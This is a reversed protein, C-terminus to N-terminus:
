AWEKALEWAHQVHRDYREFIGPASEARFEFTPSNSGTSSGLYPTVIMREDARVVSISPHTGYTRIEFSDGCAERMKGFRTLSARIRASLTGPPSGEDADISDAGGYDPDLLLVRVQCGSSTADALIGPVDDDSAYGFETMGYLFIIGAAERIIENWQTRTVLGRGPYASAAAEAVAGSSRRASEPSKGSSEGEWPRMTIGLMSGPVHLGDAVREIIDIKTAKRGRRTYDTVQSLSM